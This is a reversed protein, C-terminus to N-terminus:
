QETTSQHDVNAGPKDAHGGPGDSTSGTESSSEPANEPTAVDPSGGDSSDGATAVDASHATATAVRAVDPTSQDGQQVTDGDTGTAPAEAVAAKATPSAPKSASALTSGGVALATLAALVGTLKLIRKRMLVSEKTTIEM